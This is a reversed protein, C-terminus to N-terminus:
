SGPPVEDTQIHEHNGPHGAPCHNHGGQSHCKGVMVGGVWRNKGGQSVQIRVFRPVAYAPLWTRVHQYLKQGDFTQGPVLQVAAMGVKGECGPFCM